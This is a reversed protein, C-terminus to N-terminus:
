PISEITAKVTPLLMSGPYAREFQAAKSRAEAFRSAGVLAQIWIAEREEALLGKPFDKAHRELQEFATATQSRSVASRAAELLKREAALTDTRPEAPAPTAETARPPTVQVSPAASHRAMSHIGAGAAGGLAFLVAGTVLRSAVLQQLVSTGQAATAAPPPTALLTSTLRALVAVQAGPPVALLPREADLLAAIEKDMPDLSADDM